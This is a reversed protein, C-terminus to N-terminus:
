ECDGVEEMTVAPDGGNESLQLDFELARVDPSAYEDYPIDNWKMPRGVKRRKSTDLIRYARLYTLVRKTKRGTAISPTIVSKLDAAGSGVATSSM